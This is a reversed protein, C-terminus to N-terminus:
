RFFKVSFLKQIVMFQFLIIRSTNRVEGSDTSIKLFTMGQADKSSHFWGLIPEFGIATRVWDGVQAEDMRVTGHITELGTGGEFCVAASTSTAYEGPTGITSPDYQTTGPAATSTSTTTTTDAVHEDSGVFSGASVPPQPEQAPAQTSATATIPVKAPVTEVAEPAQEHPTVAAASTVAATTTEDTQARVSDKADVTADTSVAARSFSDKADAAADTAAAARSSGMNISGDPAVTAV